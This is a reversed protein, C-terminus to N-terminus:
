PALVSPRGSSSSSGGQTESPQTLDRQLQPWKTSQEENNRSQETSAKIRNLQMEESLEKLLKEKKKNESQKWGEFQQRWHKEREEFSGFHEVVSGIQNVRSRNDNESILFRTACRWL